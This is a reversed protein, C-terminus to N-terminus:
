ERDTRCAELAHEFGQDHTWSLQSRPMDNCRERTAGGDWGLDCRGHFQVINEPESRAKPRKPRIAGSFRCFRGVGACRLVGTKFM